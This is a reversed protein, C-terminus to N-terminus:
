PGAQRVAFVQEIIDEIPQDEITVDSVPQDNLLKAAVTSTDEKRVRLTM